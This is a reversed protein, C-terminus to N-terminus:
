TLVIRRSCGKMAHLAKSINTSSNKLMQHGEDLCVVDPGPELLAAKILEKATMQSTSTISGETTAGTDTDIDTGAEEVPKSKKKKSKSSKKEPPQIFHKCLGALIRDSTLLVGGEKMWEVLVGLRGSREYANLNYMNVQPVQKGKEKTLIWKSWEQEWNAITNVPVCLLARRKTSSLLKRLFSM